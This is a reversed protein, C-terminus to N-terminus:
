MEDILKSSGDTLANRAAEAEDRDGDFNEIPEELGVEALWDRADDLTSGDREAVREAINEIGFPAIRTFLCVGGRAVALNTVDGLYCYLTTPQPAAGEVPEPSGSAFARIMGFAALDIGAPRLGANRM